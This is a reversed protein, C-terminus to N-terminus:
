LIPPCPTGLLDTCLICGGGWLCSFCLACEFGRIRLCPILLEVHVVLCILSSFLCCIGIYICIYSFCFCLMGASVKFGNFGEDFDECFLNMQMWTDCYDPKGREM